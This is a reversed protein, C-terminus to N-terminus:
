DRAESLPNLIWCQQSSHPLVLVCSPDPTAIATTYALLQLELKVGPRAQSDGYAASFFCFVFFFTPTIMWNNLIFLNYSLSILFRGWWVVLYYCQYESESRGWELAWIKELHTMSEKCTFDPPDYSAQHIVLVKDFLSTGLLSTFVDPHYCGWFRDKWALSIEQFGASLQRGM